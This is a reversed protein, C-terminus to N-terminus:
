SETSSDTALAGQTTEGEFSSDPIAGEEIAGGPVVGGQSSDEGQIPKTGEGLSDKPPLDPLASDLDSYPDLAMRINQLTSKSWVERNIDDNSATVNWPRYYGLQNAVVVIRIDYGFLTADYAALDTYRVPSIENVEQLLKSVESPDVARLIIDGEEQNPLILSSYDAFADIKVSVPAWALTAALVEPDSYQTLTIEPQEDKTLNAARAVDARLMEFKERWDESAQGDDGEINKYKAMEEQLYSDLGSFDARSLYKTIATEWVDSTEPDLTPRDQYEQELDEATVPKPDTLSDPNKLGVDPENNRGGLSISAVLGVILCVAVILIALGGFMLKRNFSTSTSKKKGKPSDWPDNDTEFM